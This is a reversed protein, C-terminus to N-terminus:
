VSTFGNVQVQEYKYDSYLHLGLALLIFGYDYRVSFNFERLKAIFFGAHSAPYYIFKASLPMENCEAGSLRAPQNPIIQM